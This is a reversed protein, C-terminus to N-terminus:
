SLYERIIEGILKLEEPSLDNAWNSNPHNKERGAAIQELSQKLYDIDKRPTVSDAKQLRPGPQVAARSIQKEPGTKRLQTRRKVKEPLEIAAEDDAQAAMQNTGTGSVGVAARNGGALSRPQIIKGCLTNDLYDQLEALLQQHRIETSGGGHELIGLFLASLTGMSAYLVIYYSDCRYWYSAFAGVGGLFFGLLAMQGPVAAWTSLRTGLFRVDYLQRELYDRTNRIGQNVRYTNEAKQRLDRLTKNKTLSMNASEKILRKYLNQTVIRGLIGLGCVVALVYLAKGSQLFNLM